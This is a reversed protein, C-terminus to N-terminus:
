RIPQLPVPPAASPGRVSYSMKDRVNHALKEIEALKRAESATLDDSNGNQVEMDLQAALKVIKDADSVLSKQREKNLESLRKEPDAVDPGMDDAHGLRQGLPQQFPTHTQPANQAGGLPVLFLGLWLAKGASHRAIRLWAHRVRMAVVKSSGRM